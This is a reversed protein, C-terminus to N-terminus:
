RALRLQYQRSVVVMSILLILGLSIVGWEGMTPVIEATATIQARIEGSPAASTHINLYANGAILAQGDAAAIPFTGTIMGMTTAGMSIGTTLNVIVPGNAGAPANHFHAATINGTLGSFPITVTVMGASVDYVGSVTATGASMTPPVEQAASATGSLNYVQASLVISSVMALLLTIFKM